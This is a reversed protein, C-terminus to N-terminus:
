KRITAAGLPLEPNARQATLMVTIRARDATTFVVIVLRLCALVGSSRIDLTLLKHFTDVAIPCGTSMMTPPAIPAATPLRSAISTPAVSIALLTRRSGRSDGSGAATPEVLHHAAIRETRENM